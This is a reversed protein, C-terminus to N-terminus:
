ATTAMAYLHDPYDYGALMIQGAHALGLRKVVAISRENGPDVLAVIRTFSAARSAILGRCAETAFGQGWASRRLRFGLEGDGPALRDSAAHLSVYGLVCRDHRAEIALHGSTQMARHLWAEQAPLDLVGDDSFRMVEADQLVSKLDPLDDARWARLTLRATDIM